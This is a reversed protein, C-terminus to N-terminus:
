PSLTRTMGVWRVQNLRVLQPEIVHPFHPTRPGAVLTWPETLAGHRPQKSKLVEIDPLRSSHEISIHQTRDALNGASSFNATSNALAARQETPPM